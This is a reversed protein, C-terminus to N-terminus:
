LSSVRLAARAQEIGRMNRDVDVPESCMRRVRETNAEMKRKSCAQAANRQGTVMGVLQSITVHPNAQYARRWEMVHHDYVEALRARRYRDEDKIAPHTEMEMEVMRHAAAKM